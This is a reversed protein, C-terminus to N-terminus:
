YENLIVEYFNQEKYIPFGHKKAQIILHDKNEIFQNLNCQFVSIPHNSVANAEKKAQELNHKKNSVLLLDIDSENEEEKKAASGFIVITYVSVPAKELFNRLPSKVGVNLSRFKSIAIESFKLSFIKKDKIQYFTNSKTKKPTLINAKILKALVNQLSSHSLNTKEKLQNYYLNSEKAELYAKYVKEEAKMKNTFLFPLKYIKGLKPLIKGIKPTQSTLGNSNVDM